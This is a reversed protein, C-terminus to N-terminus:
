EESQGLIKNFRKKLYEAQLQTVARGREYPDGKTLSIMRKVKDVWEKEILDVDGASLTSDDSTTAGDDQAVVPTAPTLPDAVPMVAPPQNATEVTSVGREPIPAVEFGHEIGTPQAELGSPMQPVSEANPLQQPLEPNM